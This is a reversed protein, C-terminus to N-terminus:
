TFGLVAAAVGLGAALWKREEKHFFVVVAIAVVCVVAAKTHKTEWQWIDLTM